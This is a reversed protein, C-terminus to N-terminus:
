LLQGNVNTSGSFLPNQWCSSCQRGSMRMLGITYGPFSSLFVCMPCQTLYIYRNQKFIVLDLSNTEYIRTDWKADYRVM